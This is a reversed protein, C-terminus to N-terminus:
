KSQTLLRAAAKQVSQLRPISKQTFGSYLSYCHDLRSSIFAHLSKKWTKIHSLLNLWPVVKKINPEFSLNQGCLWYLVYQVELLAWCDLSSCWNSGPFIIKIRSKNRRDLDMCFRWPRKRLGEFWKEYDQQFVFLHVFHFIYGGKHLQDINLTFPKKERM